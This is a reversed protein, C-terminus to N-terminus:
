RPRGGTATIFKGYNEYVLQQMDGDLNKIERAVGRHEALLRELPLGRVLSAVHRDADFAASDAGLTAAAASASSASAPGGVRLSPPAVRSPAPPASASPGLPLPPPPAGSPSGPPRGGFEAAGGGASPTGPQSADGYYSSLLNKIRATRKAYDDEAM